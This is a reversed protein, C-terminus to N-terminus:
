LAIKFPISTIVEENPGTEFTKLDSFLDGAPHTIKAEYEGHFLSAEFYGDSDTTGDSDATSSLTTRFRDVVDGTALNKFNNDTLCMRYCGQPSWASWLMIGQIERHSHLERLLQDLYAAQM